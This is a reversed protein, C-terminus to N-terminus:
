GPFGQPPYPHLERTLRPIIVCDPYVKRAIDLYRQSEQFCGKRTEALAIYSACFAVEYADQLSPIARLLLALGEDITGQEVLVCGRTAQFSSLSAFNVHSGLALAEKSFLDAELLLDIEPSFAVDRSFQQCPARPNDPLSITGENLLAIDAVVVNELITARSPIPLSPASLVGLLFSRARAHEKLPILAHGMGSQNNLDEPYLQLGREFWRVADAYKKDKVCEQGEQYYFFAHGTQIQSRSYFPVSLLALGDSPIPVNCITLKSPVLALGLVILNAASFTLGILLRPPFHELETLLLKPTWWWLCGALLAGNAMPGGLYMFFARLRFFSTTPFGVWVFGASPFANIEVRTRRYKFEFLTKGQGLGIRFIRGGFLWAFLAHGAEHPVIALAQFAALLSLNILVWGLTLSPILTVLVLGVGIWGLIAFLAIQYVTREQKPWCSPCYLQNRNTFSKRIERFPIDPSYAMGCGACQRKSALIVQASHANRWPLRFLLGVLAGLVAGLVLGVGIPFSILIISLSTDGDRFMDQAVSHGLYLYAALPVGMGGLLGGIVMCGILSRNPRTGWM